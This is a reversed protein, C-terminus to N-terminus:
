SFKPLRYALDLQAQADGEQAKQQLETISLATTDTM